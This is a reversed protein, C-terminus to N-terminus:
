RSRLQTVEENYIEIGPIEAVGLKIDRALLEENVQLYKLPVKSLDVTRFKRVTRTYMLAGEGRISKEVPPAYVADDLGLLDLAKTMQDELFKRAKELSKQYEECKAKTISQIQKLPTLLEKAKDNRANIRDQDPANAEKRLFEIRKEWDKSESYLATCRDFEDQNIVTLKQTSEIIEQFRKKLNLKNDNVLFEDVETSILQATM